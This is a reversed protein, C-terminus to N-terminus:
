GTTPNPTGAPRPLGPLTLWLFRFPAGAGTTWTVRAGIPIIFFDGPRVTAEKVETHSTGALSYRLNAEGAVVYHMEDQAFFRFKTEAAPYEQVAASCHATHQGALPGDASVKLVPIEDLIPEPLSEFKGLYYGPWLSM